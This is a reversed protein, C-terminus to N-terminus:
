RRNFAPSALVLTVGEHRTEARSVATRLGPTLLVGLAREAFAMPELDKGRQQVLRNAWEVRAALGSPTIWSAPDESWGDPGLPRLLPQGMAELPRMLGGFFQVRNLGALDAGTVGVARMASVVFGLPTKAKKLPLAWARRDSLMAEYAAPLAGDALLYAVAVAEVFDDDPDPGVFHVLLKRALHRATQPHVALDELAAEVEEVAAGNDSGYSKGLVTEAGPEALGPNFQFRGDRLTMGTLLEAFERVDVQTYSGGVGVTHLELVERALNENLGRNRRKGVRSNPGVSRVQNLYTLMAPHRVVARLMDAFRGGVHPRIATEIMDGLFLTRRRDDAAVTFHDTWFWALRERFGHPSDVARGLLRLADDHTIRRYRQNLADVAADTPVTGERRAKRQATQDALFGIRIGLDPHPVPAVSPADAAVEALLM